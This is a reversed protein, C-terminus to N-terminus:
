VTTFKVPNKYGIIGKTRMVFIRARVSFVSRGLKVAMERCESKQYNEILFDNESKIYQFVKREKKPPKYTYTKLWEAELKEALRLRGGNEAIMAQIDFFLPTKPQSLGPFIKDNIKM